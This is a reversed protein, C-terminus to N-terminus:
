NDDQKKHAAMCGVGGPLGYKEVAKEIIEYKVESSLGFEACINYIRIIAAGLEPQSFVSEWDPVGKNIPRSPNDTRGLLYDTTTNFIDAFRQLIEQSPERHGKEYNNITQQTMNVKSGLGAQTMGNAERLQRLRDPFM